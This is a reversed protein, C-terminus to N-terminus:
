KRLDEPKEAEQLLPIIPDPRMDIVAEGSGSLAKGRRGANNAAADFCHCATREGNGHSACAGSVGKVAREL